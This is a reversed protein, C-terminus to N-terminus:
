DLPADGIGGGSFGFDAYQIGIRAVSDRLKEAGSLRKFILQRQSLEVAPIVQDHRNGSVRSEIVPKRTVNFGSFVAERIWSKATKHGELASTHRNVTPAACAATIDYPM